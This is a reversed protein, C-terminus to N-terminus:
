TSIISFTQCNIEAGTINGPLPLTGGTGPLTGGTGPLTSGSGPLTPASMGFGGAVNDLEDESLEEPNKPIRIYVTDSTEQVARVLFNEPLSEGLEKEIVSKPDNLLQKKFESDGWAKKILIEELEQRKM